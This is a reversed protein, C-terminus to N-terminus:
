EALGQRALWTSVTALDESLTALTAAADKWWLLGLRAARREAQDVTFHRCVERIRAPERYAERREVGRKQQSPSVALLWVYTPRPPVTSSELAEAVDLQRALQDYGDQYEIKGDIDAARKVEILVHYDPHELHVDVQTASEMAAHPNQHPKVGHAGVNERLWRLRDASPKLPRWFRARVGAHSAVSPAHVGAAEFMPPVWSDPDLRALARFLNWTAVDEGHEKALDAAFKGGSRLKRQLDEHDHDILVASPIHM